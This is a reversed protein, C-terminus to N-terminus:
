GERTKSGTRTKSGRKQKQDPEQNEDKELPADCPNAPRDAATQGFGIRPLQGRLGFLLLISFLAIIKWDRNKM